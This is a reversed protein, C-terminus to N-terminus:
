DALPGVLIRDNDSDAVYLRGQPGIRAGHPRRLQTERWTDGVTAGAKGPMGAVTEITGRVPDYRRICHNETDVVLLRGKRDMVVYKPGALLADRAVGGDGGYGSKGSANVVARIKGDKIALVANGERLALYITGDSAMCAARPGALPTELPKAGDIPKGATGNGAITTVTRDVLDIRRLRANGIDAVLIAKSDTSLSCCYAQNFTAAVASGDDGSFGPLGTGAVVRVRAAAPDLARIRHAFTDALYVEGDPAVAVDHLGSFRVAAAETQTDPASVTKHDGAHFVGAVFTVRTTGDAAPREVRFVRNGRSFEVGYLRGEADFAIAFPENVVGPDPEKAVRGKESGVLVRVEGAVASTGYALMIVLVLVGFGWAGKKAMVGGIVRM